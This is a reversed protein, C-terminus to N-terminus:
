TASPRKSLKIDLNWQTPDFIKMLSTWWTSNFPGNQYQKYVQDPSYAYNAAYLAGILGGFGNPGGVTIKTRTGAGSGDTIFLGDLMCSRSLKGDMYVDSTRGNLVVTINVWRQLDVSEIDCKNFDASNDSYPTTGSDIKGIQAPDLKASNITQSSTDYSTRIGLKNVNQGLYMILTKYTGGGGDLTLITKNKGSNVNWNTIYIWTSISYEGGGLLPPVDPAGSVGSTFILGPGKTQSPMPIIGSYLTINQLTGDGALWKYLYYLCLGLIIFLCVAFILRSTGKLVSGSANDM